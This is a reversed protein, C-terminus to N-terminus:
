TSAGFSRVLSRVFSQIPRTKVGVAAATMQYDDIRVETLQLRKRDNVFNGIELITNIKIFHLSCSACVEIVEVFVIGRSVLFFLLHSINYGCNTYQITYM